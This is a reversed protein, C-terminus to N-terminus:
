QQSRQAKRTCCCALRTATRAATRDPLRLSSGNVCPPSGHDLSPSLCLALSAEGYDLLLEQGAAVRAITFIFQHPRLTSCDYMQASWLARSTHM